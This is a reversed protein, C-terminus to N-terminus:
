DSSRAQYDARRAAEPMVIRDLGRLGSDTTTKHNYSVALYRAIPSGAGNGNRPSKARSKLADQKIGDLRDVLRARDLDPKRDLLLAVAMLIQGDAAGGAYGYAAVMVDFAASLLTDPEWVDHRAGLAWIRDMITFANFGGNGVTGSAPFLRHQELINLKSLADNNRVNVAGKFAEYPTLKRRLKNSRDFYGYEAAIDPKGRSTVFGEMVLVPLEADAGLAERAMWTRGLGDFVALQGNPRYFASITGALVASFGGAKELYMRLITAREEPDRQYPPQALQSVPVKMLTVTIDFVQENVTEKVNWKM